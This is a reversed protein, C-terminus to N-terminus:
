LAGLGPRRLGSESGELTAQFCEGRECETVDGVSRITRRMRLSDIPSNRGHDEVIAEALTAPSKRARVAARVRSNAMRVASPAVAEAMTRCNSVSVMSSAPAALRMPMAGSGDEAADQEPEYRVAEGLPIFDVDLSQPVPLSLSDACLDSARSM